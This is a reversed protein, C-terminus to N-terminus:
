DRKTQLPSCVKELWRGIVSWLVKEEKSAPVFESSEKKHHITEVFAELEEKAREFVSPGKVEDVPTNEKIGDRRGHTEKQHHNSSKEHHIM